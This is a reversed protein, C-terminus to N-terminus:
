RCAGRWPERSPGRSEEPRLLAAPLLRLRAADGHVSPDPGSYRASSVRSAFKTAVHSGPFRLLGGVNLSSSTHECPSSPARGLQGPLSVKMHVAEGDTFARPAVGPLYFAQEASRTLALVPRERSASGWCCVERTAPNFPDARESLHM